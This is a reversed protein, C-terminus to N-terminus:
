RTRPSLDLKALFKARGPHFSLTHCDRPYQRLTVTDLHRMLISKGQLIRETGTGRLSTVM